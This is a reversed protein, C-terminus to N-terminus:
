GNKKREIDAKIALYVVMIAIILVSGLTRYTDLDKAEQLYISWSTCIVIVATKEQFLYKLKQLM